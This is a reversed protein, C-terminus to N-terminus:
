DIAAPFWTIMKQEVRCCQRLKGSATASAGLLSPSPSPLLPLRKLGFSGAPGPGQPLTPAPEAPPLPPWVPASPALGRSPLSQWPSRPSPRQRTQGQQRSVTPMKRPDSSKNAHTTAHLQAYPQPRSGGTGNSPRPLSSSESM